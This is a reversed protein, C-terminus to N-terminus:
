EIMGRGWGAMWKSLLGSCEVTEHNENRFKNSEQHRITCILVIVMATAANEPIKVNNHPLFAIHTHARAIMPYLWHDAYAWKSDFHTHRGLSYPLLMALIKYIILSIATFHIRSHKPPLLILESVSTKVENARLWDFALLLRTALMNKYM